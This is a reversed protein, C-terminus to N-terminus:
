KDERHKRYYIGVVTQCEPCKLHERKPETIMLFRGGCVCCDQIEQHSAVLTTATFLAKIALMINKLIIRVV